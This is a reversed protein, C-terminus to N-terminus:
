NRFRFGRGVNASVLIVKLFMAERIKRDFFQAASFENAEHSDLMLSVFTWKRGANINAPSQLFRSPSFAVCRFRRFGAQLKRKFRRIPIFNERHAGICICSRFGNHFFDAQLFHPSELM